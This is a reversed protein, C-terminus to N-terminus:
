IRRQGFWALVDRPPPHTPNTLPAVARAARSMPRAVPVPLAAAANPLPLASEPPPLPATLVFCDAVRQVAHPAPQHAAHPCPSAAAATHLLCPLAQAVPTLLLGVGLLLLALIRKM